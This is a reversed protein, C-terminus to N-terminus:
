AAAGGAKRQAFLDYTDGIEERQTTPRGRPAATLKRGTTRELASVWGADGLPRGTTSAARLRRRAEEDVDVEFFGGLAAGLRNVLPEPTLFGDACGDLHSRVSSWPWEIARPVLGARVPNLGVYRACQLLYTEDMPFSVFRGQWLFGTWGERRNVVRTYRLHTAGMARALGSPDSPAAILHVHNPMLCYAWVEVGENAFMEAAIARYLRFDREGFFTTQRRNGRQILHHPAGAVVVRATRPMAAAEAESWSPTRWKNERTLSIPSVYSKRARASRSRNRAFQQLWATKPFDYM